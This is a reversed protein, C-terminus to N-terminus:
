FHVHPNPCIVFFYNTYKTHFQLNLIITTNVLILKHTRAMSYIVHKKAYDEMSHEILECLFMFEVSHKRYCPCSSIYV